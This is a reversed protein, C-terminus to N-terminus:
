TTEECAPSGDYRSESRSFSSMSVSAPRQSNKPNKMANAILAGSNGTWVQSASVVSFAVGPVPTSSTQMRSLIPVNPMSRNQRPIKGSADCHAVGNTMVSASIETTYPARSAMPWSSTNRRIPRVESLWKPRIVSPMKVILVCPPM